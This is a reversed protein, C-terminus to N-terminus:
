RKGMIWRGMGSLYDAASTQNEVLPGAIKALEEAREDSLYSRRQYFNIIAQQEDLQLPRPPAQPKIEQQESLQELAGVHLVVTGAVIDGIRQFRKNCLLCVLGFGYAFPLFDVFRLLNRILSSGPTVPSANEQAVFLGMMSKGPTKGKHFLEFYVPYLWEVLFILILYIGHGMEDFVRLTTGLAIFIVLRILVDILWAYFRLVPGAPVLRLAVGEPTNISYATDITQM